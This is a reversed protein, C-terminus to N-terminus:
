DDMKAVNNNVCRDSVATFNEAHLFKVDLQLKNLCTQLVLM